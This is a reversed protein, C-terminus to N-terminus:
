ANYVPLKVIFNSGEGPVSDVDIKGHHAEVIRKVFSLGLGFGRVTSQDGETIRYFKKFIRRLHKSEIGTGNDKVCLVISGNENYTRISIYPQQSYKLANDLLNIVVILLYGPDSLVTDNAAKLDYRIFAKKEDILPQLNNVADSIIEHLRVERRKLHLHNSEAHTYRLLREIHDELYKGQYKIIDAYNRMRENNKIVDSGELTEAALSIVSVPTKFEHTFNNIFDIQLENLFKQRYFYYLSGSLLILVVLLLGSTILWFNMLSLIYSERHPFYLIINNFVQKTKPLEIKKTVPTTAAPLYATFVYRKEASNYIGMYCDTFIEQDELESQMYYVLSDTDPISNIRMSYTESNQRKILDSLHLQPPIDMDVDDYFNRVAKTISVDFSKQEFNYVKWLWILQFIVIAAIILTSIFIGLRITHSRLTM